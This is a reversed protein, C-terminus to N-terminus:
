LADYAIVVLEHMRHECLLRLDFLPLLLEFAVAAGLRLLLLLRARRALDHLLLDRLLLREDLLHLAVLSDKVLLIILEHRSRALDALHDAATM